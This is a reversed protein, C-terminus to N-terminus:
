PVVRRRLEAMRRRVQASRVDCVIDTEHAVDSRQHLHLLVLAERQSQEDLGAGLRSLVFAHARAAARYADYVRDLDRLARYAFVAADDMAM